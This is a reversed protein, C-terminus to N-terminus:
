NYCTRKHILPNKIFLKMLKQNEFFRTEGSWVINLQIETILGV